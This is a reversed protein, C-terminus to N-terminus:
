FFFSRADYSAVISKLITRMTTIIGININPKMKGNKIIGISTHRPSNAHQIRRLRSPPCGSGTIKKACFCLFLLVM